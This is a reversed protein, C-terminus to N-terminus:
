AGNVNHNRANGIVGYCSKMANNIGNRALYKAAM